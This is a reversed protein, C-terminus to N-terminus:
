SSCAAQPARRGQSDSVELQSRRRILFRVVQLDVSNSSESALYADCDIHYGFPIGGPKNIRVKAKDVLYQVMVKLKADDQIVFAAYLISEQFEPDVMNMKAGWGVLMKVM